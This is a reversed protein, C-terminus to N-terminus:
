IKVIDSIHDPGLVPVGQVLTMFNVIETSKENTM